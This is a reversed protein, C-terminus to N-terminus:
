VSRPHKLADMCRRTIPGPAPWRRAGLARIPWIGILSNTVFVEDASELKEWVSRRINMRINLTSSLEIIKSRMLGSVGCTSLDPTFLEGGSVWFLNSRTGCIVQGTHDCLIGEQVDAPWDRSALVQELRNLHKIGALAPQAALTFVCRFAQIGTEWYSVPYQPAQHITLLRDCTRTQPRYGRTGPQRMLMVKLVACAKGAAMGQAETSLLALGPPELDLAHSDAALKHLHRDWDLLQGQHVLVTRFVGDGYHLARSFALSTDAPRGNFLAAHSM